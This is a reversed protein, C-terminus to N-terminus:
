ARNWIFCIKERCIKEKNEPKGKIVDVAELEVDTSVKKYGVIQLNANM